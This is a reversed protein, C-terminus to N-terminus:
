ITCSCLQNYYHIHSDDFLCATSGWRCSYPVWLGVVICQFQSVNQLSSTLFSLSNVMLDHLAPQLLPHPQRRVSMGHEGLPLQIPSVIRCCHVPVSQRKSPQVHPLVSQQGNSRAVAFSTTITSTATTSCVQGTGKDVATHSKCALRPFKTSEQLLFWHLYSTM